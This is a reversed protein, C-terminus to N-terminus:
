PAVFSAPTYSNESASVRTPPSGGAMDADTATVYVDYTVGMTFTGAPFQAETGAVWQGAVYANGLWAAALYSRAGPVANWTLKVTGSGPTQASIGDPLTLPDPAGIAFQTAVAEAGSRATLTYLGPDPAVGYVWVMLRTFNAPLTFRLPDGAPLNPGTVEVSWTGGDATGDGRALGIWVALGPVLGYDIRGGAARLLLPAGTDRRLLGLRAHSVDVRGPLEPQGTSCLTEPDVSLAEISGLYGGAPLATIDCGPATSLEQLHVTAGATLVCAYASAGSVAPWGLRSGDLALAPEPVALLAGDPLPAAATLTERGDSAVVDYTSGAAPAVDPWWSLAYRAGAGYAAQAGLLEGGRTLRVTWGDVPVGGAQTRVTTLAATGVRGSGDDWTGVAARLVHPERVDADQTRGGCGAAVFAIAVIARAELM